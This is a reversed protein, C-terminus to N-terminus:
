NRHQSASLTMSAATVEAEESALSEGVANIASIKFQYTRGYDFRHPVSNVHM